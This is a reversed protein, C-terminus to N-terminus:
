TADLTQFQTRRLKTPLPSRETQRPAGSSVRIVSGRRLRFTKIRRLMKGVVVLVCGQFDAAPNGTPAAGVVVCTLDAAPKSVQAGQQKADAAAWITEVIGSPWAGQLFGYISDVACAGAARAANLPM